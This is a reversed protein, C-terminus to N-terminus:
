KKKKTKVRLIKRSDDDKKNTPMRLGLFSNNLATRLNLFRAFDLLEEKRIKLDAVVAETSLEMKPALMISLVLYHCIAKRRTFKTMLGTVSNPDVFSRRIHMEVAECLESMSIRQLPKRQYGHSQQILSQLADVLIIASVSLLQDSQSLTTSRQIACFKDMLFESSIRSSFCLNIIQGISKMEM